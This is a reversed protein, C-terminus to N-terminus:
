FPLIPPPLPAKRRQNGNQPMSATSGLERCGSYLIATLGGCRCAPSLPPPAPTCVSIRLRLPHVSSCFTAHLPENYVCCVQGPTEPIHAYGAGVACFMRWDEPWKSPNGMEGLSLQQIKHGDIFFNMRNSSLEAIEWQIHHWKDDLIDKTIKM